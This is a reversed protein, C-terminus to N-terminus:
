LAFAIPHPSLFHYFVYSLRSEGGEGGDILNCELTKAEQLVLQNVPPPPLYLLFQRHLFRVSLEQQGAKRMVVSNGM